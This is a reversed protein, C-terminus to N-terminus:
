KQKHNRVIDLFENEERVVAEVEEVTICPERMKMAIRMHAQDHCRAIELDALHGKNRSYRRMAINARQSKKLQKRLKINSLVSCGAIIAVAIFAIKFGEDSEEM